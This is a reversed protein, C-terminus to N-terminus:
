TTTLVDPAPLVSLGELIEVLLQEWRPLLLLAHQLHLVLHLPLGGHVHLWGHRHVAEHRGLTQRRWRPRAHHRRRDECVRLWWLLLLM